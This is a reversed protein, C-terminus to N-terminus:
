LNGNPNTQCQSIDLFTGSVKESVDNGIRSFARRISRAMASASFRPRQVDQRLAVAEETLRFISEPGDVFTSVPIMLGARALERYADLNQPVVEVQDGSLRRHLLALAAESLDPM